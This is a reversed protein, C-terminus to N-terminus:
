SCVETLEAQAGNKQRRKEILARIGITVALVLVTASIAISGVVIYYLAPTEALLFASEKVKIKSHSSGKIFCM